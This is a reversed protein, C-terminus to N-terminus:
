ARGPLDPRLGGVTLMALAILANASVARQPRDQTAQSTAPGFWVSLALREDRMREGTHAPRSNPAPFYSPGGPRAKGKYRTAMRRITGGTM